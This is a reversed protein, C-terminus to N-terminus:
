MLPTTEKTIGKSNMWALIEQCPNTETDCQDLSIQWVAKVSGSEQFDKYPVIYFTLEDGDTYFYAIHYGNNGWLIDELMQEPDMGYCSFGHQQAFAYVKEKDERFFRRKM